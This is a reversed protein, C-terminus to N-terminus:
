IPCSNIKEGCYSLYLSSNGSIFRGFGLDCAEEIDYEYYLSLNEEECKDSSYFTDYEM